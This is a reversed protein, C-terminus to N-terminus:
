DEEVETGPPHIPDDIEEIERPIIANVKEGCDAPDLGKRCGAGNWWQCETPRRCRLSRPGHAHIVVDLKHHTCNCTM